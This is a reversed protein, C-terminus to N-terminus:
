RVDKSSMAVGGAEFLLCRKSVGKLVLTFARPDRLCRTMATGFVVLIDTKSQFHGHMM